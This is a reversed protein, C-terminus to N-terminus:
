LEDDSEFDPPSGRKPRTRHWVPSGDDAFGILWPRELDGRGYDWGVHHGREWGAFYGSKFHASDQRRQFRWTWCAGILTGVLLAILPTLDIPPVLQGGPTRNTLSSSRRRPAVELPKFHAAVEFSKFDF